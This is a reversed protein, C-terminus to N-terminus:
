SSCLLLYLKLLCFQSVFTFYFCIEVSKIQNSKISQISIFVRVYAFLCTTARHTRASEFQRFMPPIYCVFPNLALVTIFITTTFGEHNESLNMACLNVIIKMWSGTIFEGILGLVRLQLITNIM